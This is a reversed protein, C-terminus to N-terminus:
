KKRSSEPKLTEKQKKVPEVPAVKEPAEQKQGPESPAAKEQKAKQKQKKKAEIYKPVAVFSTAILANSLNGDPINPMHDEMVPAWANSLTKIEGESMDVERASVSVKQVIKWVLSIIFGLLIEVPIFDALSKKAPEPQGNETVTEGDKIDTKIDLEVALADIAEMSQVPEAQKNESIM